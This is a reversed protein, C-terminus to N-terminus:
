SIHSIKKFESIKNLFVLAGLVCSLGNIILTNQVGLKSTLFGAILSGFPATGIFAMTYFSMVRGRKNDEVIKQLVTNSGAMQIIMGLGTIIMLILAIIFVRTFALSILAFGFILASLPLIKIIGSSDRRSALYIAGALAGIGSSSMLLGFTHSGGHLIKKVFVPMVLAYSMGMLSVLALLLIAYRIAVVGFTYRFGEKLDSFIKNNNQIKLNKLKVNMMLLSVIVFIYSLGNVLFCMGEGATTVLIGAITPGILRAANVMLSNLAIANSLDEKKDIIDVVFSQRTPMDFADICGLLIGLIVIHWIKITGTFFLVALSLAQLMALIQTAILIKHRHLRDVWVGAFPTLLFAPIQSSFGVVGLLFASKSLRYVLWPTTIRQIWTGILSITQGIFFLRYNRYQLSRFAVKLGTQNSNNNEEKM